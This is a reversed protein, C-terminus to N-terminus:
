SARPDGPILADSFGWPIDLSTPPDTLLAKATRRAIRIAQSELHHEARELDAVKWTISHYADNPADLVWDTYAATGAGPAALELTCDDIRVYTRTADLMLNPGEHIIEGGLLGLIAIARGPQDTLIKHHSCREIGLPDDESVPPVEWDAETRPDCPFVMAPYFEYRLGTETRLSSRRRTM